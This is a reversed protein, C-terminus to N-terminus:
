VQKIGPDTGPHRDARMQFPASETSGRPSACACSSETNDSLSQSSAATFSVPAIFRFGRRSLTEIFRPNDASDGLAERLKKIANALAHEFDVIVDPGWVGRQLEERTVIEGANELLIKLVKLLYRRFNLM